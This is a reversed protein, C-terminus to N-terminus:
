NWFLFFYFPSDTLLYKWYRSGGIFCVSVLLLLFFTALLFATSGSKNKQFCTGDSFHISSYKM